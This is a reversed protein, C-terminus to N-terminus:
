VLSVSSFSLFLFVAELPLKDQDKPHCPMKGATVVGGILLTVGLSNYTNPSFGNLMFAKLCKSTVNYQKAKCSFPIAIRM